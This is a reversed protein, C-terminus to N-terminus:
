AIAMKNGTKLSRRWRWLRWVMLGTFLDVLVFMGLGFQLQAIEAEIRYRLTNRAPNAADFLVLNHRGTEILPWTSYPGRKAEGELTGGDPAKFTYRLHANFRRQGGKSRGETIVVSTIQGYVPTGWSALRKHSVLDVAIWGTVGVCFAFQCIIACARMWMIFSGSESAAKNFHKQGLLATVELLM